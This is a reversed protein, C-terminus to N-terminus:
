AGYSHLANRAFQPDQSFNAKYNTMENCAMSRLLCLAFRMGTKNLLCVVCAFTGRVAGPKHFSNYTEKLAAVKLSAMRFLTFIQSCVFANWKRRHTTRFSKLRFKYRWWKIQITWILRLHFDPFNRQHYQVFSSPNQISKADSQWIPRDM